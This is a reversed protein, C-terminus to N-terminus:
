STLSSETLVMFALEWQYPWRSGSGCGGVGYAGAHQFRASSQHRPRVITILDEFHPNSGGVLSKAEVELSRLTEVVSATMNDPVTGWIYRPSPTRHRFSDVGTVGACSSGASCHMRSSSAPPYTAGKRAYM